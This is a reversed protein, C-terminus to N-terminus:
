GEWQWSAEWEREREIATRVQARRAARRAVREVHTETARMAKHAAWAAYEPSETILNRGTPIM